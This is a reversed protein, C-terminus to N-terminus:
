HYYVILPIGIVIFSVFIFISFLKILYTKDGKISLNNIIFKRFIFIFFLLLSISLLTVTVINLNKLDRCSKDNYFKWESLKGQWIIIQKNNNQIDINFSSPDKQLKNLIEPKTIDTGKYAIVSEYLSKCAKLYDLKYILQLKSLDKNDLINLNNYIMLSNNFNLLASNYNACLNTHKFYIYLGISIGSLAIIITTIIIWKKYPKIITNNKLNQKNPLSPPPPPNIVLKQKEKNIISALKKLKKMDIKVM